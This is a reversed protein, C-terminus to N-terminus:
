FDAARSRLALWPRTPGYWGGGLLGIFGSTSYRPEISPQVKKADVKEPEASDAASNL